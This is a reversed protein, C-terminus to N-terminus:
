IGYGGPLSEGRHAITEVFVIGLRVRSVRASLVSDMRNLKRM